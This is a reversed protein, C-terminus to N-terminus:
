HRRHPPGRRRRRRPQRRPGGLECLQRDLAEIEGLTADAPFAAVLTATVPVRVHGSLEGGWGRPM